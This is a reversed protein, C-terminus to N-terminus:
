CCAVGKRLIRAGAGSGLLRRGSLGHQAAYGAYANWNLRGGRVALRVPDDAFVVDPNLGQQSSLATCYQDLYYNWQDMLFTDTGSPGLAMTPNAAQALALARALAGAPGCPGANTTDTTKTTTGSGSGQTGNTNTTTNTGSGSGQTGTNTTTGSGSGSGTAAGFLSGLWGQSYAFWALGGAAALGIVTGLGDKAM